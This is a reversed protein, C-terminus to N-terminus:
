FHVDLSMRRKANHLQKLSSYYELFRQGKDTIFFQHNRSDFSLLDNKILMVVYTNLQGYEMFTMHMLRTKSVPMESASELINAVIDNRSPYKM